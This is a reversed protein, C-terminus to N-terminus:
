CRPRRRSLSFVLRWYSQQGIGEEWIVFKFLKIKLLKGDAVWNGAQDFVSVPDGLELGM